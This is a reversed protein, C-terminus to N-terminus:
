SVEIEIDSSCIWFQKLCVYFEDMRGRKQDGKVQDSTKGSCEKEPVSDCPRQLQHRLAGMHCCNEGHKQNALVM